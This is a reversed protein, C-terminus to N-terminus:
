RGDQVQAGLGLGLGVSADSGDAEKRGYIHLLKPKKIIGRDVLRLYARQRAEFCHRQYTEKSQQKRREAYAPDSAYRERM